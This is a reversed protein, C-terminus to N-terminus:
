DRKQQGCGATCPTAHASGYLLGLVGITSVIIRFSMHVGGQLGRGASRHVNRHSRLASCGVAECASGRGDLSLFYPAIETTRGLAPRHRRRLAERRSSLRDGGRTRAAEDAGAAIRERAIPVGYGRAAGEVRARVADGDGDRMRRF